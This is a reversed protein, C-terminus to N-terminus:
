YCQDLGVRVQLVSGSGSEGTVRIRVTGSGPGRNILVEYEYLGEDSLATNTIQLSPDERSPLKFRPDGQKGQSNIWFVPGTAGRKTVTVAYIIVNLDAVFYSEFSCSIETTRGVVGDASQCDVRIGGDQSNGLSVSVLVMLLVMEVAMSPIFGPRNCEGGKCFSEDRSFFPKINEVHITDTKDPDDCFSIKCTLQSLPKIIKAPGKWKEALKASFNTEARSLPHTRVWVRDGEQFNRQIRKRNYYKAQKLQAKKVNEQVQHILEQQRQITQYADHDPHPPQGLFRELPGKLKRGLAIEAPTYDTSEQWATNIAFRFEPLWQDWLRLKDRVFSAMMVKLSRNMRETLNTQPHYATTLKQVVGWQKCVAHLLHSTFQAGRDSVLFVLFAPTGWRTFIERTLISAIQPAIQPSSCSSLLNYLKQKDEHGVDANQVLEKIQNQMEPDEQYMADIALYLNNHAMHKIDQGFVFCGAHPLIYSNHQFDLVMGVSRLFDLGLIAPFALDQNSMVYFSHHYNQGHLYCELEVKGKAEQHLGNALLFAQGESSKWHEGERRVTDWWAERILSYSSGTDVVAAVSWERMELPLILSKTQAPVNQVVNTQGPTPVTEKAPLREIKEPQSAREWYSKAEALDREILSGVRVLEDITSVTGRLLSALRPNCNRLVAQLLEKETIDKKWRLCLARYQFAFDRISESKGERGCDEKLRQRM